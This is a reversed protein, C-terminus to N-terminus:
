APATEIEDLYPRLREAGRSLWADLTRGSAGLVRAAEDPPLDLCHRCFLAARVETPQELLADSVGGSGALGQGGGRRALGPWRGRRRCRRYVIALFWTRFSAVKGGRRRYSGWAELTADHVAQEAGAYDLLVVTALRYAPDMAGEVRRMFLGRSPKFGGGSSREEEMTQGM